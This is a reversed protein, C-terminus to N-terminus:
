AEFSPSCVGSIDKSARRLPECRLIVADYCFPWRMSALKRESRLRQGLPQALASGRKVHFLLAAAASHRDAGPIAPLSLDSQAMWAALDTSGAYRRNAAAKSSRGM